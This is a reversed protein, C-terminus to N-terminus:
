QRKEPHYRLLQVTEKAFSLFGYRCYHRSQREAFPQMPGHGSHSAANVGPKYWLCQLAQTGHALKFHFFRPYSFFKRCWSHDDYNHLKPLFKIPKQIQCRLSLSIIWGLLLSKILWSRRESFRPNVPLLDASCFWSTQFVLIGYTDKIAIKLSDLYRRWWSESCNFFIHFGRGLM